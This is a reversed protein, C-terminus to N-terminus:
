RETTKGTRAEAKAEESEGKEGAQDRMSEKWTRTSPKRNTEKRGEGIRKGCSNRLHKGQAKAKPREAQSQSEKTRKLKLKRSSLRRNRGKGEERSQRVTAKGTSRNKREAEGNEVKKETQNGM